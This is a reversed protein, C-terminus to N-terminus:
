ELAPLTADGEDVQGGKNSFNLVPEVLLDLYEAALPRHFLDGPLDPSKPEAVDQFSGLTRHVRQRSTLQFWAARGPKAVTQAFPHDFRQRVLPALVQGRGEVGM